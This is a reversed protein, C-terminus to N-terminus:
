EPILPTNTELFFFLELYYFLYKERNQPSRISLKKEKPIATELATTQPMDTFKFLRDLIQRHAMAYVWLGSRWSM